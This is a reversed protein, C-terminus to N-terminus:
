ISVTEFVDPQRFHSEIYEKLKQFAPKGQDKRSYVKIVTRKKLVTFLSFLNVLSLIISFYLNIDTLPTLDFLSVQAKAKFQGEILEHLINLSIVLDHNINYYNLITILGVTDKDIWNSDNLKIWSQYFSSHSNLNFDEYYGSFDFEFRSGSIPKSGKMQRYEWSYIDKTYKTTMLKRECSKSNVDIEACNIPNSRIQILRIFGFNKNFKNFALKFIDNSNIASQSYSYGNNFQEYTPIQFAKSM